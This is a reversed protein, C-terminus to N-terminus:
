VMHCKAGNTATQIREDLLLMDHHQQINNVSSCHDIAEPRASVYMIITQQITTTDRQGM